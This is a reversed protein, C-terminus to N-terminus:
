LMACGLWGGVLPLLPWLEPLSPTPGYVVLMLAPFILLVNLTPYGKIGLIDHFLGGDTRNSRLDSHRILNDLWCAFDVLTQLKARSLSLIGLVMYIGLVSAIAILPYM